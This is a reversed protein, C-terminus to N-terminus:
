EFRLQMPRRAPPHHGLAQRRFMTWEKCAMVGAGNKTRAPYLLHGQSQCGTPCRAPCALHRHEGRGEQKLLWSCPVLFLAGLVFFLAGGMEDNMIMEDNM